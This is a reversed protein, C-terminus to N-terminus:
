SFRGIIRRMKMIMRRAPSMAQHPVDKENFRQGLEDRSRNPERLKRFFATDYVTALEEWEEEAKLFDWLIRVSNINIDDVIMIGGPKLRMETYHFDIIPFPFRHAGDIFVLDLPEDKSLGPLVDTSSGICFRTSGASINYRQCVEAVRKTEDEHPTICVHDCGMMAFVITSLGCGTELTRAGAPLVAAIQRLVDENVAWSTQGRAHLKPQEHIIQKILDM